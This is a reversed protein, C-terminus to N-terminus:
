EKGGGLIRSVFGQKVEEPSSKLADLNHTQRTIDKYQESKFGKYGKLGTGLLDAIMDYPNWDEGRYFGQGFMRLQAIAISTIQNPFYTTEDISDADMFKAMGQVQKPDIGKVACMTTFLLDSVEDMSMQPIPEKEETM